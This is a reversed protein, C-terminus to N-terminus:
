LWYVYRRYEGILQLFEDRAQLLDNMLDIFYQLYDQETQIWIIGHFQHGFQGYTILYHGETKYKIVPEYHFDELPFLYTKGNPWLMDLWILRETHTRVQFRADRYTFNVKDEADEEYKLNLKKLVEFLLMAM